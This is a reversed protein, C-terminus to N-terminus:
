GQKVLKRFTRMARPPDMFQGFGSYSVEAVYIDGRSDVGIGHPAMFQGPKEGPLQDGLRALRKGSLDHISICAGCNPYDANFPQQSPLEGIYVLDNIIHLGCPRHMNNWQRLYTGDADFIQIRHNERDALYVTGRSDTCVSHPLNFCSPDSGYDGWSFLHEGSKTYKHIRANGYGDSIYLNEEGIDFAVKTPRCFPDGSQYAAGKDRTGFAALLEGEPTFQGIWHGDDDVCYLTGDSAITVGHPRTFQGYGWSTVFTGDAEFVTMPHEGRSFVYVRDQQDVAVDVTEFFTWGDPLQAWSALEEYVFDGDGLLTKM